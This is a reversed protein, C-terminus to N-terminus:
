GFIQVLEACQAPELMPGTGAKLNDSQREPKGTAPIVVTVAPHGLAFKLFLQAWSTIGFDPAWPPLIKGDVRKFLAGDLFARNVIVAVGLDQALPLLRDAAGPEAVSYNVQLFDPRESEIVAALEDHAGNSSHTVGIYRTKGDAKLARILPLQTQWDRLSHVQLLDVSDTELDALSQRFQALGSDRGTTSIKTALFIKDRADLEAVLAGVAPEAEGYVPATDIVRARGALFRRLVERLADREGAPVDFSGSTGMGIVPLAEGTSPIPRTLLPGAEPASAASTDARLITPRLSVAAAALAAASLFRRRSPM